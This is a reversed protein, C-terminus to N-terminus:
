CETCGRIYTTLNMEVSSDLSPHCGLIIEFIAHRSGFALHEVAWGPEVINKNHSDHSFITSLIPVILFHLPSHIDTNISSKSVALDQAPLKHLNFWYSVIRDNALM